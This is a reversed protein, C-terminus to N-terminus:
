SKRTLWYCSPQCSDVKHLLFLIPLTNELCSLPITDCVASVIWYSGGVIEAMRKIWQQAQAISDWRM